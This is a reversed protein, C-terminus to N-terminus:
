VVCGLAPAQCLLKASIPGCQLSPVDWNGGTLAVQLGLWWGRPVQHSGNNSSGRSKAVSELPVWQKGPQHKEGSFPLTQYDPVRGLHGADEGDPLLDAGQQREGTAQDAAQGLSDAKWQEQHSVSSIVMMELRARIM